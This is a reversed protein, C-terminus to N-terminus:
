EELLKRTNAVAEDFAAMFEDRTIEKMYHRSFLFYDSKSMSCFGDKISFSIGRGGNSLDGYFYTKKNEVGTEIYYRM